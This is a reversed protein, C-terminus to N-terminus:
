PRPSIIPSSLSSRGCGMSRPFFPLNPSAPTPSCAASAEQDTALKGLVTEFDRRTVAFPSPSRSFHDPSLIIIRRYNQGQVRSFAGAVLDAALLHHPITVGHIKQPLPEAQCTRIAAVFVERDTFFPPFARKGPPQDAGSCAAVLLLLLAVPAIKRM